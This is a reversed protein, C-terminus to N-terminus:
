FKQQLRNIAASIIPRKHFYNLFIILGLIRVPLKTGFQLQKKKMSQIRIQLFM